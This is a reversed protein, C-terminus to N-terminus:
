RIPSRARADPISRAPSSVIVGARRWERSETGGPPCRLEIQPNGVAALTAAVTAFGTGFPWVMTGTVSCELYNLERNHIQRNISDPDGCVLHDGMGPLYLPEASGPTPAGAWIALILPIAKRM